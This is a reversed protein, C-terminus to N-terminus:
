GGWGNGALLVSFRGCCNVLIARIEDTTENVRRAAEGLAQGVQDKQEEYGSVVPVTTRLTRRRSSRRRPKPAPKEGARKRALGERYKRYAEPDAGEPVEVITGDSLKVTVPKQRVISRTM